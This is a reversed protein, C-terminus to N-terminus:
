KNLAEDIKNMEIATTEEGAMIGSSNAIVNNSIFPDGYNATTPIGELNFYKEIFTFEQESMHPNVLFGRNTALLNSGTVENGAINKQMLEIKLFKEAKKIATKDILESAIGKSDNFAFLNGIATTNMELVKVGIEELKKKEYSETIRPVLFGKKNGRALVGLISTSAISTQIIEISFFEEFKKIEHKGLQAPFLGIKDTISAFIGIYPSGKINKRDIRM